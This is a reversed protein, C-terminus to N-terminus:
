QIYVRKTNALGKNNHSPIHSREKFIDGNRNITKTEDTLYGLLYNTEGTNNYYTKAVTETIGGGYNVSAATVNGYAYYSYSSSVTTNKLKDVSTSGTM